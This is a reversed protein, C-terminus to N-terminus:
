QMLLFEGDEGRGEEGRPKKKHGGGLAVVVNRGMREARLPLSASSPKTLQKLGGKRGGGRVRLTKKGWKVKKRKQAQICLRV